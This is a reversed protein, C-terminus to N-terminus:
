LVLGLDELQIAMASVSVGFTKALPSFYRGMRQVPMNAVLLSRYRVNQSFDKPRFSQNSIATLRSLLTSSPDRGDIPEGFILQFHGTMIEAPMLLESAFKNAEQEEPPHGINAQEGGSLPRDRHYVVGPHLIWHGIEHAVTFRRWEHPYKQAVVIRRNERDMLGATEYGARDSPIQEPEELTLYLLSRVIEEVPVPVLDAATRSRRWIEHSKCQLTEWLKCAQDRARIEGIVTM